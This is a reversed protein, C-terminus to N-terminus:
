STMYKIGDKTNGELQQSLATRKVKRKHYVQCRRQYKHEKWSMLFLQRRPKGNTIYKLGGETNTNKGAAPFSNDEQSEEQSTNSVPRPTQTGELQKSLATRKAERKHYVQYWGQHKREKWSSPFLQRRPKERTMYKIGVKTNTKWSSPFLKRRPKGSTIYKIGGKTNTNRGAAPFSSDEQSEAQSTSSVARSTQIGKLQQSLATKKVKRKSISSVTRPTQTGQLQKSFSDEQNEAQSTSSVARSTQTGELQQSLATKKVKLKDYVQYRGEHKRGAASFSSDEQSEAQSISSVAKPIQTGELEHSLAATKAKRKHYVKFRGRHKHEKWSSDEQSEEQSTNSVPRPTQTGELQKSLATRKAKRKHYVQYWGQHKREKWSSPFLQRRPKERTMYKIGVKTNTKWSSPFLKRRPKGSTIYKIGGKTNTNRGAAPFSSDEQSEAQSTSSVARSTQIGKLQKSLATKKVKRKSISSVTRPTQTGQLQKSFSDEQNEAQSTSSVARSTQTGELQQSLATKKAKRKHHVQYRM